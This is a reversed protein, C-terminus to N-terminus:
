QHSPVLDPLIVLTLKSISIAKLVYMVRVHIPFKQTVNVLIGLEEAQFNM